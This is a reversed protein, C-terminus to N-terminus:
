DAARSLACKSCRSSRCFLWKTPQETLDKEDLEDARKHESYIIYSLVALIFAVISFIVIIVQADASITKISIETKSVYPAFPFDNENYSLSKIDETMVLSFPQPSQNITSCKVVVEYVTNDAPDEVIVQRRPQRNYVWFSTFLLYKRCYMIWWRRCYGM